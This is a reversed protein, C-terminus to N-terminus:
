VAHQSAGMVKRVLELQSSVHLKKYVAQLHNRVTHRSIFLISAIESVSGNRILTVIIERERRTLVAYEEATLHWGSSPVDRSVEVQWPEVPGPLEGTGLARHLEDLLRSVEAVRETSINVRRMRTRELGQEVRAILERPDLPKTIYDLAQLRLARVATLVHPQGTIVIAPLRGERVPAWELLELESNGPMHIDVLLLDIQQAAAIQRVEASDAATVVQFGHHRLVAAASDRVSVDDDAVLLQFPQM